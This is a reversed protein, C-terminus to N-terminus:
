NDAETVADLLAAKIAMEMMPEPIDRQLIVGDHDVLFSAPFHHIRWTAAISGSKNHDGDLITGVDGPDWGEVTFSLVPLRDPLRTTGHLTVGDIADLGQQLTSFLEMEQRHIEGLKAYLRFHDHGLFWRGLFRGRSRCM